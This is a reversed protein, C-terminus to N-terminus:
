DEMPGVYWKSCLDLGDINAKWAMGNSDEGKVMLSFPKNNVYVFFYLQRDDGELPETWFVLEQNLHKKAKKVAYVAQEFSMPGIPEDAKMESVSEGIESEKKIDECLDTIIKNMLEELNIKKPDMQLYELNFHPNFWYM